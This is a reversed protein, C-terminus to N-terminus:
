AIRKFYHLLTPTSGGDFTISQTGIRLWDGYGNKAPSLNTTSVTIGHDSMAPLNHKQNDIYKINLIDNAVSDPTCTAIVKQDTILQLIVAQAKLTFEIATDGVLAPVPIGYVTVIVADGTVQGNVGTVTGSFTWADVQAVGGPSIGDTNTVIANIPLSISVVDNLASEVNDEYFGKAYQSITVTGPAQYGLVDTNGPITDYTLFNSNRSIVGAKNSLLSM